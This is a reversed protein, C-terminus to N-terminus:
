RSAIKGLYAGLWPIVNRGHSEWARISALVGQPRNSAPWEPLSERLLDYHRQAEALRQVVIM